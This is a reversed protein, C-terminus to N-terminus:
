VQPPVDGASMAAFTYNFLATAERFKMLYRSCFPTSESLAFRLLNSVLRISSHAGCPVRTTDGVILDGVKSSVHAIILDAEKSLGRGCINHHSAGLPRQPFGSGCIGNFMADLEMLECPDDAAKACQFDLGRSAIDPDGADPHLFDLEDLRDSSAKGM